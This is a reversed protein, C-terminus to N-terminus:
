VGFAGDGRSWGGMAPTSRAAISPSCFLHFRGLQTPQFWLETKRDPLVDQKVRFDPIYFSHIVDQSTM